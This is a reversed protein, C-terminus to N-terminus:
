VQAGNTFILEGEITNTLSVFEKQEEVEVDQDNDDKKVVIVTRIEKSYINLKKDQDFEIIESPTRDYDYKVVDIDQTRWGKYNATRPIWDLETESNLWFDVFNGKHFLALM